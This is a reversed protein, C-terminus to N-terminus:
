RAPDPRGDENADVAVRTLAGDKYYEWRDVQHNRKTSVEIRVPQGNADRFVWADIIGDNRLSAGVGVQGNVIRVCEEVNGDNDRDVEAELLARGPGFIRRLQGERTMTEHVLLYAGSVPDRERSFGPGGPGDGYMGHRGYATVGVVVAAALGVTFVSTELTSPKM